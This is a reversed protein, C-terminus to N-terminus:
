AHGTAFWSNIRRPMASYRRRVTAVLDALTQEALARRWAIEARRMAADITCMAQTTGWNASPGHSRIETCQFAHQEGEIATVVDMLTIRAPDRALKFGGGRGPVSSVIGARALAQLQKNLYAPPLDHFAALRATPVAADPDLFALNLCCHLAWEVGESM